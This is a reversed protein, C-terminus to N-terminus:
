SLAQGTYETADRPTIWTRAITQSVFGDAGFPGNARLADHNPETEMLPAASAAAPLAVLLTAVSLLGLLARSLGLLRRVRRSEPM